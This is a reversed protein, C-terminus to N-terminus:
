LKSYGLEPCTRQHLDM